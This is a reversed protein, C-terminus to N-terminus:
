APPGPEELQASLLAILEDASDSTMQDSFPHGTKECLDLLIAAQEGNMLHSDEMMTPGDTM